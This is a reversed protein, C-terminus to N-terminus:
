TEANALFHIRIARRKTQMADCSFHAAAPGHTRHELAAFHNTVGPASLTLRRDSMANEPQFPQLRLEITASVDICQRAVNVDVAGAVLRCESARGRAAANM